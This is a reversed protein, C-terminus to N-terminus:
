MRARQSCARTIAIVAQGVCIGADNPPLLHHSYVKFGRELLRATVLELLLRNQFVGGSLVAKDVKESLRVGECVAVVAEAVTNHFMAAIRGKEEGKEVDAVISRITDGFDVIGASFNFGYAERCGAEPAAAAQLRIAAQGEYTVSDCLGLIASVADFLRGASSTLPSQLRREMMTELLTTEKHALGALLNAIHKMDGGMEDYLCSFAMRVPHLIAEEGGPMRYHKFHAERRFQSLDAVMFEGGWVTGDDGYGTGDLAVGIVRENIGNEAMCAAVHAHHHQIGVLKVGSMAMANRTSVYDPHLDHAITVPEVQLLKKLDTLAERYFALAGFEALDGIHQSVFASNGRTLCFTNKLDGGCALVTGGSVPLAISNPVFGRSRRFFLPGASTIQLVSDDCRRLIPRNHEIASDAISGLIKQLEVEDKAIPEDAANGSTMVLPSVNALLLHHLPSYPLFAGIDKTDPSVLHSLSSSKRRVLVVIPREAGCMALRETESVECYDRVEDLSKFMVALAKHPRCKRERLMKVATNNRADCCLHYGGIGKIAIIGGSSLVASAKELPNGTSEMGIGDVLRLMPGCKACAVPQADFRRDAPNAYERSCDSCMVFSAMSTRERDYPLERIITFRPGCDTCNIFPYLHRRNMPDFLEAVCSDCTALDPPMGVVIDGSRSSAEIYFGHEGTAPIDKICIDSLLAHPPPSERLLKIFVDLTSQTGEAEIVVGHLSNRVAGAIGLATAHRYVSPRFGVGQVRGGVTIQVRRKVCISVLFAIGAVPTFGSPEFSTSCM